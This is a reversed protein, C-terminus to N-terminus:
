KEGAASQGHTDCKPNQEADSSGSDNSAGATRPQGSSAPSRLRAILQQKWQDEPVNHAWDPINASPLKFGAMASKVNTVQELDLQLRNTECQTQNWLVGQKSSRPHDPLQLHVPVKNDAFNAMFAPHVNGQAVSASIDVGAGRVETLSEQSLIAADVSQPSPPGMWGGDGGGDDDPEQPLLMYGNNEDEEMDSNNEEDSSSASAVPPIIDPTELEDQEQSPDYDSGTHQNDDPIPSM